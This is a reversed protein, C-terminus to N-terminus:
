CCTEISFFDVSFLQFWAPMWCHYWTPLKRFSPHFHQVAHLTDVFIRCQIDQLLQLSLIRVIAIVQAVLNM